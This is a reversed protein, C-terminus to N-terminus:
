AAFAVRGSEEVDALVETDHLGPHDILFRALPTVMLTEM